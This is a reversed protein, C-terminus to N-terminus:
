IDFYKYVSIPNEDDVRLNPEASEVIKRISEELKIPIQKLVEIIDNILQTMQIFERSNNRGHDIM